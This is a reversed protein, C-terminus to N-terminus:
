PCPEAFVERDFPVYAVRFGISGFSDTPLRDGDRASVRIAERSGLYSGGRVVKFLGEPPGTPNTLIPDEPYVNVYWDGVWEAANGVLDYAGIPGPTDITNPNVGDFWGVPNTGEVSFPDGSEIYNARMQGLTDDPTAVTRGWPYDWFTSDARAAVEWEAESLLRLGYHIAYGSAGFWTAGTVPHNDFGSEIRYEEADISFFIRSNRLDFFDVVEGAQNLGRIKNNEFSVTKRFLACNLYDLYERNTVEFKKVRLVETLNVRHVPFEDADAPTPNTAGVTYIGPPLEVFEMEEPPKPEGGVPTVVVIREKTNSLDIYTNRAELRATYGPNALGFRFRQVEDARAGADWDVDWIGDGNFDWRVEIEATTAILDRTLEVEENPLKFPRFVFEISQDGSPPSVVFDPIPALLDSTNFVAVTVADSRTQNGATDTARAFVQPITGSGIQQTQWRLFYLSWGDPVDFLGQLSDTVEAETISAAARGVEREETEAPSLYFGEIFSLGSDDRAIIYVDSSDSVTWPEDILELPFVVQVDPGTVDGTQPPVTDSCGPTLLALTTTFCIFWGVSRAM